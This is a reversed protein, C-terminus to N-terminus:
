WVEVVAVQRWRWIGGGFMVAFAAPTLTYGLIRMRRSYQIEHSIERLADRAEELSISGTCFNRSVDNVRCVRNM